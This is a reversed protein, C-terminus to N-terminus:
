DALCGTAWYTIRVAEAGDLQAPLGPQGPTEDGVQELEILEGLVRGDQLVLRQWIVVGKTPVESIDTAEDQTLERTPVVLSRSERRYQM